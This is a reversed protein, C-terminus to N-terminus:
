GGLALTAAAWGRMLAHRVRAGVGRAPSSRRGLGNRRQGPRSNGRRSLGFHDDPRISGMVGPCDRVGRGTTASKTQQGDGSRAAGRPTRLVAGAM